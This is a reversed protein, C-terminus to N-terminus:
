QITANFVLAITGGSALSATVFAITVGTFSAGVPDSEDAGASDDDEVTAATACATGSRLSGPTYVVGPPLPDSGSVLSAPLPGGNAILICYQIQAGPIMKPNTVGNQPDSLVSSVKTLTMAATQVSFTIEDINWFNAQTQAAGAGPIQALGGSTAADRGYVRLVYGAGTTASLPVTPAPQAPVSNNNSWIADGAVADGHTGDNYLIFTGSISTGASNFFEATVPNTAGTPTADVQVTIPLVQGSVYTGGTAPTTINIGFAQPTGLTATVVSWEVDDLHYWSQDATDNYSRARFTITTGAYAALSQTIQIWQEGHCPITMGLTHTNNLGCDFGNYNRYGPTTATVQATGSNPSFPKTAYSGATAGVMEVLVTGGSNQLDIRTTDFGTSDFGEVRYWFTLNGANTAPVVISRTFTVGPNGGTQTATSDRWGYLYSFDGTHPSGDTSRPNVGDLSTPNAAVSATEIPRVAADFNASSKTPANWGLPAATGTAGREFNGNIPTQPNAAKAGNQTVDFYVYYTVPGADELLFRIEGRGNAAADTAGGYVRDTFEQITSLAGTSRVVRPSNVDFSGTVGMQTLLTTFDVDAKITSNVSSGAPIIIPVRYHWDPALSVANQDYWIPASRLDAFAPGFMGFISLFLVALVFFSGLRKL